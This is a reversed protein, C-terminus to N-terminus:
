FTYRVNPYIALAPIMQTVETLSTIEFGAQLNPIGTRYAIGAGFEVDVLVSGQDKTVKPSAFAPGAGARVILDLKEGWIPHMYKMGLNVYIISFNDTNKKNPNSDVANTDVSGSAFFLQGAVNDTFDYGVEAGLFPQLNSYGNEGGLSFYGGPNVSAFFGRKSVDEQASASFPSFLVATAFFVFLRNRM